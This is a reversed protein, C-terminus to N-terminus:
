VFSELIPEIRQYRGSEMHPTTDLMQPHHRGLPIVCNCLLKAVPGGCGHSTSWVILPLDRSRHPMGQNSRSGYVSSFKGGLDGSVKSPRRTVRRLDFTTCRCRRPSWCRRHLPSRPFKEFFSPPSECFGRSFRPFCCLIYFRSSVHDSVHNKHLARTAAVARASLAPHDALAALFTKLQLNPRLPDAPWEAAIHRLRQQAHRLHHNTSM